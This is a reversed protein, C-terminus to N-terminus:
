PRARYSIVLYDVMVYKPCTTCDAPELNRIVLTNESQLIDGAIPFVASGWNGPGSRGSDNPLPNPGEYITVGNLVISMRNKIPNEGDLGVIELTAPGEAQGGRELQFNATMTHYPTGQGYVWSASRQHYQGSGPGDYDGVFLQDPIQTQYDQVPGPPVPTPQPPV